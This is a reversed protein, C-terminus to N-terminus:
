LPHVLSFLGTPQKRSSIGRLARFPHACIINAILGVVRVPRARNGCPTKKMCQIHLTISTTMVLRDQFGNPLLGAHTRIGCEGGFGFPADCSAGKPNPPLPAALLCLPAFRGGSSACASTRSFPLRGDRRRLQTRFGVKEALDAPRAFARGASKQISPPIQFPRRHALVPFLGGPAPQEARPRTPASRRLM